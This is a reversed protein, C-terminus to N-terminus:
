GAAAGPLWDVRQVQAVIPQGDQLDQTLVFLLLGKFAGQALLQQPHIVQLGLPHLQITGGGAAVPTHGFVSHKLKPM